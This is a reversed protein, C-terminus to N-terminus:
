STIRGGPQVHWIWGNLKMGKSTVTSPPTSFTTPAAPDIIGNIQDDSLFIRFRHFNAIVGSFVRKHIFNDLSPNFEVTKYPSESENAYFEITLLYDPDPFGAETAPADFYFDVFGLRCQQGKDVFPNFDETLLNFGSRERDDFAFAPGFNFINGLKDGFIPNKANGQAYYYFWNADEPIDNWRYDAPVDGPDNTASQFGNAITFDQWALDQGQTYFGFCTSNINWQSWSQEHSNWVLWKNSFDTIETDKSPHCIIQQNMIDYRVGNCISLGDQNIEDQVYDIIDNDYRDLSVGDCKVLGTTGISTTFHQFGVTGYPSDIRKTENLKQWRFPNSDIGTWRLKWTSEQFEVILEDRLFEASIIWEGTPADIFGGPGNRTNSVWNSPNNLASYRARQPKVAGNETPRLIILRNRYIFIHLGTNLENVLPTASTFSIIPQYINTGDYVTLRNTNNLIFAKNQYNAVSFFSPNTTTFLDSGVVENMTFNAPDMEAMRHNNFILTKQTGDSTWFWKIGKIPDDPATFEWTAWIDEDAAAAPPAVGFTVSGVGTAYTITGTMGVSGPSLTGTLGDSAPTDGTAATEQATATNHIVLHRSTIPLAYPAITPLAFPFTVTVGDGTAIRVGYNIRIPTNLTPAATFNLVIAGTAYNITSGAAINTGTINGAGDDIGDTVVVGANTHTIALSRKGVPLYDLTPTFALTVGDGIGVQKIGVQNPFKGYLLYGYRKQVSGRYTYCDELIQFADQPSMFPKLYKNIGNKIPAVLYPQYM